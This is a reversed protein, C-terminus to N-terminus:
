VEVHPCHNFSRAARALEEMVLIAETVPLDDTQYVSAPWVGIDLGCSLNSM